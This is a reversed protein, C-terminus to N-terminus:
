KLDMSYDVIAARVHSKLRFLRCCAGTQKDDAWSTGLEMIKIEDREIRKEYLALDGDMQTIEARLMSDPM